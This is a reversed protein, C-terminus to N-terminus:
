AVWRIDNELWVGEAICTGREILYVKPGKAEMARNKTM